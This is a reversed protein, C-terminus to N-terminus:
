REIGLHKVMFSAIAAVDDRRFRPLASALPDDCVVAILNPDGAEAGFAEAGPAEALLGPSARVEIRAIGPENRFGEVLVLDCPALEALVQDLRPAPGRLETMLAWRQPGAIMVQSAGAARLRFSDKGPRDIDFGCHAHKIASISLGRETLVQILREILTTKGAGSRGVFSIAKM